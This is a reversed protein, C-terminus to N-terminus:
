ARSARGILLGIGFGVLLAQVPYRRIMTTCERGFEGLHEESYHYADEAWNQVKDAAQTVGQGADGAWERVKERAQRAFEGAKDAVAGLNQKATDMMGGGTTQASHQAGHLTDAARDTMRKAGQAATDIGEKVKDRTEAM